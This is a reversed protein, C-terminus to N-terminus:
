ERPLAALRGSRQWERMQANDIQGSAHAARVQAQTTFQTDMPAAAATKLSPGAQEPHAAQWEALASEIRAKIAAETTVVKGPEPNRWAWRVGEQYIAEDLANGSLQRLERLSAQRGNQEMTVRLNQRRLEEIPELVMDTIENKWASIPASVQTNVYSQQIDTLTLDQRGTLSRLTDLIVNNLKGALEDTRGHLEQVRQTYDEDAKQYVAQQQQYGNILRWEATSIIHEEGRQMGNFKRM